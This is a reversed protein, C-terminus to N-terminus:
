SCSCGRRVPPLENHCLSRNLFLSYSRQIDHAHMVFTSFPVNNFKRWLNTEPDFVEASRLYYNGDFGGVAFILGNVVALGM